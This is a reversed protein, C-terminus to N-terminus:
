SPALPLTFTVTAGEGSTSEAWVRGGHLEVLRRVIALGLGAGGHKRGRAEDVRYFREFVRDLDNAPIGPGRDIVAVQADAGARSIRVRVREGAPSHRLANAVVNDVVQRLRTPDADVELAGDCTVDAQAGVIRAVAAGLELRERHLALAGAEAVALDQLDEILRQLHLVEEHLSAIRAPDPAALGDQVAELECRLNTLPTRLEHAIDGVMRRRLEEHRTIADAMANFATALQAIEDRGRLEVRAPKGRAIARVAATLQEIPRVIRRSVLATLLLAVLTAIAFISVLRRDVAAIERVPDGTDEAPLVYAHAIVGGGADRIAQPAVRVALQELRGGRDFVATVRDDGDLSVRATRLDGSVAIVDGEMGALVVRCRQDHAAREIVAGIGSWGGTTRAHDEIPGVIKDFAPPAHAILLRKVQDHTAQRAFLGSVGLTAVVLAMMAALLKWRLRTM